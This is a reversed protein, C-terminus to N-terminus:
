DLVIVETKIARPQRRQLESVYHATREQLWMDLPCRPLVVGEKGSLCIDQLKLFVEYTIIDSTKFEELIDQGLGTLGFASSLNYKKVLERLQKDLEQGGSAYLPIFTITYGQSTKSATSAVSSGRPTAPPSMFDLPAKYEGM